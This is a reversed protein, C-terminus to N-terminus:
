RAYGGSGATQRRVPVGSKKQRVIPAAYEMTLPVFRTRVDASEAYRLWRHVPNGDEWEIPVSQRVVVDSDVQGNLVCPLELHLSADASSWFHVVGEAYLVGRADPRCAWDLDVHCDWKGSTNRRFETSIFTPHLSNAPFVGSMNETTAHIPDPALGLLSALGVVCGLGVFRCISRVRGGRM